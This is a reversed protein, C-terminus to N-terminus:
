AAIAKRRREGERVERTNRAVLEYVLARKGVSPRLLRGIRQIHEREGCRGAVVIGVEADPVDLGENLVQASVLARLQGERFLFLAREREKRGIDCTLPMILHERAVAYATENDAVFVLTRAQRHLSLLRALAIRKATPYALLKRTRYFAAIARRGDDTQGAARVFDDWSAHPHFRRFRTMADRFTNTLQFYERREVPDLDVHIVIEDFPALFTGALDRVSLEYVAPGLLSALREGAGSTPPTASLGLRLSATSMELAEDRIGSGFHHAEDVILLGFRDGIVDMNRWASEFTAVTIPRLTREGDGFVGPEYGTLERVVRIWQELLVRTPVLCLTSVATEAIVAIAMRTKGSGTPLAVVGRRGALDWATIAARQYPRIDISTRCGPAAMRRASVEDSFPVGSAALAARVSEVLHAPCRYARVRPDWLAGPITHALAPTPSGVILLTGRDFTLRMSSPSPMARAM